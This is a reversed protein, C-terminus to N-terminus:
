DCDYYNEFCLVQHTPCIIMYINDGHLPNKFSPWVRHPDEEGERIGYAGKAHGSMMKIMALNTSAGDM